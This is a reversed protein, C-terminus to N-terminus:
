SKDKKEIQNLDLNDNKKKETMAHDLLFERSQSVLLTLLSEIKDLRNRTNEQLAQLELFRHLLFNQEQSFKKPFCDEVMKPTMEDKLQWWSQVYFPCEKDTKCFGQKVYCCETGCNTNQM